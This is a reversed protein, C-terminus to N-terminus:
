RSRSRPARRSAPAARPSQAIVTGAPKDSSGEADSRGDPWPRHATGRGHQLGPRDVNPVTIPAKGKSVTLTVSAGASFCRAPRRASRRDRRRGPVTDNYVDSRKAVLNLARSTPSRRRRVAQRDRGPRRIAGPGQVPDAHHHRRSRDPRPGASEPRDRHGEAIKEEFMGSSAIKVTFGAKQAAAVAQSKTLGNLAPATTYRGSGFWWGTLVVVAPRAGLARRLVDTPRQAPVHRRPVLEDRRRRSIPGTRRAPRPARCGSGPSRVGGAEILRRPPAGPASTKTGAPCGLGPRGSTAPSRARRHGGRDDPGGRDQRAPQRRDRGHRSRDPGRGAHRRRRDPREDPDRRTARVVLDDLHAPFRRSSSPRRAPRGRRRAALRRRAAQRRRVPVRGTLMEFLVIGTSYVDTRPDACGDTVLEPAVYAVTALLQGDGDEASAEVARALGFDAVKVVADVLSNTGPAEAILVNEPKVDRHVLGARHAAAIAALMQELIALAEVPELRRLDTLMDRLTRGRVYEMVLYPLGDHTGQDYVAVVNPHTLRAITKAERTFRDM